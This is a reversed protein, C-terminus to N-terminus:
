AGVAAGRAPRLADDAAILWAVLLLAVLKQAAPTLPDCGVGRAVDLAYLALDFAGLSMATYGLARVRPPLARSSLVVAAVGPVGALLVAATHLRGVRDSPTLPVLVAGVTSALGLARVASRPPHRLWLRTAAAVLALAGLQALAAGLGNPAGNIARRHHLDCFYNLALDVRRARPACYSGGPYVAASAATLLAFLAVSIPVARPPSM